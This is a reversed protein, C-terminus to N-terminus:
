VKPLSARDLQASCDPPQLLGELELVLKQALMQQESREAGEQVEIEACDV